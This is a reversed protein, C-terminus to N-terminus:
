KIFIKDNDNGELAIIDDIENFSPYLNLESKIFTQFLNQYAGAMAAKKYINMNKYFPAILKIGELLDISVTPAPLSEVSKNLFFLEDKLTWLPAKKITRFLTGGKKETRINELLLPYTKNFYTTAENYIKIKYEDDRHAAEILYKALGEQLANIESKRDLSLQSDYYTKFEDLESNAISRQNTSNKDALKPVFNTSCSTTVFIGLYVALFIYINLKKEMDVCM